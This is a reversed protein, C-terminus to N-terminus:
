NLNVVAPPTASIPTAKKTPTVVKTPSPSTVATKDANNASTTTTSPIGGGAAAAAVGSTSSNTMTMTTTSTAAAVTTTSAASRTTITGGVAGAGNLATTAIPCTAAATTAGEPKCTQKHGGHRWDWEQCQRSCYYVKQCKSCRKMQSTSTTTSSTTTTNSAAVVTPTTPTDTSTAASTATSAASTSSAAPSAAVAINNPQEETMGCAQCFIQADMGNSSTGDPATDWKLYAETEKRCLLAKSAPTDKCFKPHLGMINDCYEMCAESCYHFYWCKTCRLTHPREPTEIHACAPASCKSFYRWRQPAQDETYRMFRVSFFKCQMSNRANRLITTQEHLIADCPLRVIPGGGGGGGGSMMGGGGGGQCCKAELGKLIDDWGGLMNWDKDLIDLMACRRLVPIFRSADIPISYDYLTDWTECAASALFEKVEFHMIVQRIDTKHHPASEALRPLLQLTQLCLQLLDDRRAQWKADGSTLMSGVAHHLIFNIKYRALKVKDKILRQDSTTVVEKKWLKTSALLTSLVTQQWIQYIIEVVQKTAISTELFRQLYQMMEDNDQYELQLYPEGTSADRRNECYRLWDMTDLNEAAAKTKSSNNNSGGSSNDVNGSAFITIGTTAAGAAATAAAAAGNTGTGNATNAQQADAGTSDIANSKNGGRATKKKNKVMTAKKEERLYEICLHHFLISLSFSVEVEQGVSLCIISSTLAVVSSSTVVMLVDVPIRTRLRTETRFFLLETAVTALGV